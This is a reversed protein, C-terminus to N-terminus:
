TDDSGVFGLIALESIPELNGFFAVYFKSPELIDVCYVRGRTEDCVGDLLVARKGHNATDYLFHEFGKAQWQRLKRRLLARIQEADSPGMGM